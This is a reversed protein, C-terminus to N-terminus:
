DLDAQKELEIEKVIENQYDEIEQKAMQRDWEDQLFKRSKPEIVRQVPNLEGWGKRAKTGRGRKKM